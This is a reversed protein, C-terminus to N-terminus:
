SGHEVLNDWHKEETTVWMQLKRGHWEFELQKEQGLPTHVVDLFVRCALYHAILRTSVYIRM